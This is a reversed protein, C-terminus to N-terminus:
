NYPLFATSLHNHEQGESVYTAKAKAKPTTAKNVDSVFTVSLRVSSSMYRVSFVFPM